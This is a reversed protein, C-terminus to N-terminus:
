EPIEKGYYRCQTQRFCSYCRKCWNIEELQGNRLKVPTLPDAIAQRGFGV